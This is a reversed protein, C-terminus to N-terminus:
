LTLVLRSGIGVRHYFDPLGETGSNRAKTVNGNESFDMRDFVRGSSKSM